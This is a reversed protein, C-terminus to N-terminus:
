RGVRRGIQHEVAAGEAEVAAEGGESVTREGKATPVVRASEDRITRHDTRAQAKADRVEGRGDGEDARAAASQGQAAGVPPIVLKVEHQPVAIAAGGRHVFNAIAGPDHPGGAGVPSLGHDVRADQGSRDISGKTGRAARADDDSAAGVAAGRQAVLVGGHVQAIDVVGVNLGDEQSAASQGGGGAGATPGPRHKGSCVGVEDNAVSRNKVEFAGQAAAIGDELTPLAREDEASLGVGDGAIRHGIANSRRAVGDLRAGQAQVVAGVVVAFESVTSLQDEAAAPKAAPKLEAAATMDFDDAAGDDTGPAIEHLTEGASGDQAHVANTTLGSGRHVETVFVDGARVGVIEDADEAGPGRYSCVVPGRLARGVLDAGGDGCVPLVTQDPGKGGVIVAAYVVIPHQAAGSPVHVHARVRGLGIM